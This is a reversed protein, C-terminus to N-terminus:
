CLGSNELSKIKIATELTYIYIVLTHTHSCVCVCMCVCVCVCVYMRTISETGMWKLDCCATRFMM